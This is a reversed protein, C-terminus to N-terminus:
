GPVGAEGGGERARLINVEQKSDQFGERDLVASKSLLLLFSVQFFFLNEFDLLILHREPAWLEVRVDVLRGGLHGPGM